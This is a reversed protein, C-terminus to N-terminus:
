FYKYLKYRIFIMFNYCFEEYILREGFELFFLLNVWLDVYELIEWLICDRCENGM